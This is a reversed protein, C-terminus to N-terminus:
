PLVGGLRQAQVDTFQGDGGRERERQVLVGPRALDPELRVAPHEVGTVQRRDPPAPRAPVRKRAVHLRLFLLECALFGVVAQGSDPGCQVTVPDGVRLVDPPRAVLDLLQLPRHPEAELHWSGHHRRAGASGACEEVLAVALHDVLHEAVREQRSTVQEPAPVRVRDADTGHHGRLDRRVRQVQEVADPRHRAQELLEDALAAVQADGDDPGLDERHLDEQLLVLVVARVVAFV